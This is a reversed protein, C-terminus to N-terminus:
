YNNIYEQWIKEAEKKNHKVFILKSCHRFTDRLEEFKEVLDNTLIYVKECREWCARHNRIDDSLYLDWYTIDNSTNPNLVFLDKGCKIYIRYPLMALTYDIGLIYKGRAKDWPKSKCKSAIQIEFDELTQKCQAKFEIEKKPRSVLYKFPDESILDGSKINSEINGLLSEKLSKM